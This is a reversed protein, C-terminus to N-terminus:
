ESVKKNAILNNTLPTEKERIRKKFKEDRKARQKKLFSFLILSFVAVPILVYFLLKNIIDTM